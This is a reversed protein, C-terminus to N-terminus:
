RKRLECHEGGAEPLRVIFTAGEGLVSEVRISGWHLEVIRKSIPLGLGTGKPKGAQQDSVQHFQEFIRAQEQQPIGPGQDSVSLEYWTGRHQLDITVATGSESFKVANALLNITLQIM